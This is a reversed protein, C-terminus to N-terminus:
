LLGRVQVLLEIQTGHEAEWDPTNKHIGLASDASHHHYCLPITQYHTARRGYGVGTTVHHVLAPTDQHGMNLCAICGLGAVREMHAREARTAKKKAM